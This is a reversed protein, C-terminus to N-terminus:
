QRAMCRIASVDEIERRAASALWEILHLMSLPQDFRIGARGAVSWVISGRIPEKWGSLFLVAKDDPLFMEDTLIRAGGVSLDAMRVFLTQGSILLRASGGVEVRLEDRKAGGQRRSLWGEVDIIEDFEAEFSGHRAASVTCQASEEGLAVVVRDGERPPVPLQASISRPSITRVLCLMKAGGIEIGAARYVSRTQKQQKKADLLTVADSADGGAGGWETQRPM